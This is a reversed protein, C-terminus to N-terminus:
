DGTACCVAGLEGRWGTAYDISKGDYRSNTTTTNTNNTYTPGTNGTYESLPAIIAFTLEMCAFVGYGNKLLSEKWGFSKM